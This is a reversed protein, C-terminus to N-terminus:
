DINWIWNLINLFSYKTDKGKLKIKANQVCKGM